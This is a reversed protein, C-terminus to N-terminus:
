ETDFNIMRELEPTLKLDDSQFNRCFNQWPLIVEKPTETWNQHDIVNGFLIESKELCRSM